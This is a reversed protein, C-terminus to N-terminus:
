WRAGRGRLLAALTRASSDVLAVIARQGREIRQVQTALAAVDGLDTSTGGDCEARELENEIAHHVFAAISRPGHRQTATRLREAQNDTLDITLKLIQGEYKTPIPLPGEPRRLLRFNILVSFNRTSM